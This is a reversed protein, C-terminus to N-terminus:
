ECQVKSDRAVFKWLKFTNEQQILIEELYRENKENEERFIAPSAENTRNLRVYEREEVCPQNM